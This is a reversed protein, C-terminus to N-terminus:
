WEGIERIRDDLDKRRVNGLRSHESFRKARGSVLRGVIARVVPNRRKPALQAHHARDVKAM